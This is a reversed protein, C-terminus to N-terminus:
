RRDKEFKLKLSGPVYTSKKKPQDPQENGEVTTQPDHTSGRHILGSPKKLSVLYGAKSSDNDNKEKLYGWCSKRDQVEEEETSALLSKILNLAEPTLTSKDLDYISFAPPM